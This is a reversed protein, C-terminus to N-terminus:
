PYDPRLSYVAMGATVAIMLHPAIRSDCEGIPFPRHERAGIWSPQGAPARGISGCQMPRAGAKRRSHLRAPEAIIVLAHACSTRRPTPLRWM